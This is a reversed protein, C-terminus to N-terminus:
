LRRNLSIKFPSLGRRRIRSLREEVTGRTIIEYIDAIKNQGGRIVRGVRQAMQRRSGSGSVIIAVDADPVDIGEDLVRTTVIINIEGKRFRDFIRARNRTRGVLLEVRYGEKRAKEYIEEAQDVYETFILVKRDGVERLLELVKDVKAKAKLAYKREVLRREEESRAILIEGRMRRKEDDSLEVYILHHRIPALFGAKMLEIYSIKYVIDGATMFILHENGDVREPTASLGLRYKAKAKFAIEKFTLAPVHHVEDFIILAFKDFLKDIHKAVSNYIGVTIGKVEKRKGTFVGPSYSLKENILESWQKALEETVVCILTSQSTRFIAELGVYTKGAGTPMVVTGFKGNMEWNEIAEEQFPFLSYEKFLDIPSEPWEVEDKIAYGHQKSIDRIKHYMFYPAEYTAYGIRRLIKLEKVEVDRLTRVYYRITSMSDLAKIVPEEPYSIDLIMKGNRDSLIIEKKAMLLKELHKLHEERYYGNIANIIIDYARLPGEKTLIGRVQDFDIIAIGRELRFPPRVKNCPIFAFMDRKFYTDLLRDVEKREKEIEEVVLSEPIHFFEVLIKWDGCIAKLPDFIWTKTRPDFRCVKKIGEKVEWFRAEPVSREFVRGAVRVRM